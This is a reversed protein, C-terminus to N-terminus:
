QNNKAVILDEGGIEEQCNFPKPNQTNEKDSKSKAIITNMESDMTVKRRKLPNTSSLIVSAKIKPM